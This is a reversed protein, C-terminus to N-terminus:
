SVPLLVLALRLPVFHMIYATTSCVPMFFFHLVKPCIAVNLQVVFGNNVTTGAVMTFLM